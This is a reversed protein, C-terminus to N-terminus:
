CIKFLKILFSLKIANMGERTGVVEIEIKICPLHFFADISEKEFFKKPQWRRDGRGGGCM